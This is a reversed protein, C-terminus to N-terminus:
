APQQQLVADVSADDLAEEDDVIDAAGGRRAAGVLRVLAIRREAVAAKPLRQRACLRAVMDVPLPVRDPLLVNVDEAGGVRHRHRLIHDRLLQAVCLAENIIEIKTRFYILLNKQGYLVCITCM